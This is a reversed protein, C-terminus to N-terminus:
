GLKWMCLVDQSGGFLCYVFLKKIHLKFHSANTLHETKFNQNRRGIPVLWNYALPSCLNCNWTKIKKCVTFCDLFIPLKIQSPVFFFYTPLFNTSSELNKRMFFKSKREKEEQTSMKWTTTPAIQRFTKISTLARFLYFM